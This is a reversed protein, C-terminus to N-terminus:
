ERMAGAVVLGKVRDLHPVLDLTEVVLWRPGNLM